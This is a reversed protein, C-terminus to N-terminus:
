KKRVAGYGRLAKGVGLGGGSSRRLTGGSKKNLDEKLQDLDEGSLDTVKKSSDNKLKEYAYAGGLGLTGAVGAAKQLSDKDTARQLRTAREIARQGSTPAAILRAARDRLGGESAMVKNGILDAVRNRLPGSGASIAKHALSVGKVAAGVPTVMSLGESLGKQVAKGTETDSNDDFEKRREELDDRVKATGNRSPKVDLISDTIREAM